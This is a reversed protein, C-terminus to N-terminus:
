ERLKAITTKEEVKFPFLGYSILNNVFITAQRKPNECKIYYTTSMLPTEVPVYYNVHVNKDKDTWEVEYYTLKKSIM